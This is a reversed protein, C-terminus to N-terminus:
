SRLKHTPLAGAAAVHCAALHRPALRQLPPIEGRCRPEHPGATAVIEASGGAVEILDAVHEAGALMDDDSASVTPRRLLV